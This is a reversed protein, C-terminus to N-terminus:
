ELSTEQLRAFVPANNTFRAKQNLGPSEPHPLYCQLGWLWCSAWVALNGVTVYNLAQSPRGGKSISPYTGEQRKSQERLFTQYISDSGGALENWQISTKM